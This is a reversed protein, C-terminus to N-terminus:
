AGKQTYYIQTITNNAGDASNDTDGQVQTESGGAWSQYKDTPIALAQEDIISQSKYAVTLGDASLVYDTYEALQEETFATESTATATQKIITASIIGNEEQIDIYDWKALPVAEDLMFSEDAKYPEYETKTTGYQLMPYVVEDVTKGTGAVFYFVGGTNSNVGFMVEGKTGSLRYEGVQVGNGYDIGYKGKLISLRVFDRSVNSVTTTGKVRLGGDDQVTVTIGALTDTEFLYKSKDILNKGTSRIGKFYANKLGSFYPRYPKATTGKNLMCSFKVNNFTTTTGASVSITIYVTKTSDYTVTKSSNNDAVTYVGETTWMQAQAGTGGASSTLSLTYTGAPITLAWALYIFSNSTGNNQGNLTVTGDDNTTFTIGSPNKLGYYPFPILNTTAVTAGQIKTVRTLAGDIIDANGDATERSSYAQSLPYEDTVTAGLLTYINDIEKANQTAANQAQSASLAAANASSLASTASDQAQTAAQTANTEATQANTESQAAATASSAAQTASQQAISSYNKITEVTNEEMGVVLLLWYESNTPLIGKNAMKAIYSASNYRVINLQQYNEYQNWEGKPVPSVVGLNKETM